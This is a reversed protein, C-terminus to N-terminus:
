QEGQGSDTDEQKDFENEIPGCFQVALFQQLGLHNFYLELRLHGERQELYAM